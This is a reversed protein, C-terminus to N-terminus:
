ELESEKLKKDIENVDYNNVVGEISTIKYKDDLLGRMIWLKVYSIVHHGYLIYANYISESGKVVTIHRINDLTDELINKLIKENKTAAEDKEAKKMKEIEDKADEFTYITNSIVEGDVTICCYNSVGKYALNELWKIGFNKGM